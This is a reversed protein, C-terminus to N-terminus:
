SLKEEKRAMKAGMGRSKWLFTFGRQIYYKLNKVM